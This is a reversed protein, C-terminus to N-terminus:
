FFAILLDRDKKVGKYCKSIAIRNLITILTKSQNQSFISHGIMTQLPTNHTGNHMIFVMTQYLCHLQISKKDSILRSDDKFENSAENFRAGGGINIGGCVFNLPYIPKM